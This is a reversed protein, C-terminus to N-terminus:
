SSPPGLLWSKAVNHAPPKLIQSERGFKYRNDKQEIHNKYRSQFGLLKPSLAHKIFVISRATPTPGLLTYVCMKVVGVEEEVDEDDDDNEIEYETDDNVCEGIESTLAIM